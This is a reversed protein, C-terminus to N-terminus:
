RTEVRADRAKIFDSLRVCTRQDVIMLKCGLPVYKERITTHTCFGSLMSIPVPTDTQLAILIVTVQDALARLIAEPQLGQPNGLESNILPTKYSKM